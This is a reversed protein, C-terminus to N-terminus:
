HRDGVEEKYQAILKKMYSKDAHYVMAHVIAAAIETNAQDVSCPYNIYWDEGLFFRSLEDLALQSNLPPALISDPYKTRYDSTKDCLKMIQYDAAAYPLDVQSKWDTFISKALDHLANLIRGM